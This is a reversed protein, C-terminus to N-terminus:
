CRIQITQIWSNQIESINVSKIDIVKCERGNESIETILPVGYPLFGYDNSWVSKIRGERYEHVIQHDAEFPGCQM